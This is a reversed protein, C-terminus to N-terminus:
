PANSGHFLSFIKLCKEEEGRLIQPDSIKSTCRGPLAGDALFNKTGGNKRNPSIHPTLIKEKGREKVVM